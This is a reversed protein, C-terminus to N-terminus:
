AKKGTVKSPSTGMNEELVEPESDNRFLRGLHFDGVYTPTTTRPTTTGCTTSNSAEDQLAMQLTARLAQVKLQKVREIEKLDAQMRLRLVQPEIDRPPCTTTPKNDHKSNRRLKRAKIKQSKGPGKKCNKNSDPLKGLGNLASEASQGKLLRIRM